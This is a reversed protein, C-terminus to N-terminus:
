KSLITLQGDATVKIDKVWDPVKVSLAFQEVNSQVQNVIQSPVGAGGVQINKIDVQIEGAVMRTAAEAAVQGSFGQYEWTAVARVTETAGQFNVQVDKIPVDGAVWATPPPAASTRGSEAPTAHASERAQALVANIKSSVEQETLTVQLTPPPPVPTGDGSQVPADLAQQRQSFQQELSQLKNDLQAIAAASTPVPRMEKAMPPPQRIAYYLYAASGIVVLMIAVVLGLIAKFVTGM